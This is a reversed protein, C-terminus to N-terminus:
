GEPVPPTHAVVLRALQMAAEHARRGDANQIAMASLATGDSIDLQLWPDGSALRVGVVEAWDLRRRLFLNRVTIGAEDADLRVSGMRHLFWAVAVGFGIIALRDVLGFSTRGGTPLAIAIVTLCAVLLVAFAYAIVRGRLPRFSAPLSRARSQTV